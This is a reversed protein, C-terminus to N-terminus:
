SRRNWDGRPQSMHATTVRARGKPRSARTPHAEPDVTTESLNARKFEPDTREHRYALVAVAVTLLFITTGFGIVFGTWFEM